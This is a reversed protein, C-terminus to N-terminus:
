RLHSSSSNNSSSTPSHKVSIKNIFSTPPKYFSEKIQRVHMNCLKVLFHTSLIQLYTNEVNGDLTKTITNKSGIVTVM